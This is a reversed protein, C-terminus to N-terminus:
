AGKTRDIDTHEVVEGHRVVTRVYREPSDDITIVEFPEKAEGEAPPDGEWKTVTCVERLIVLSNDARM